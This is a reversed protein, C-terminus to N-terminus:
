KEGRAEKIAADLDENTEVYGTTAYTSAAPAPVVVPPTVPPEEEEGKEANDRATIADYVTVAGELAAIEAQGDLVKHGLAAIEKPYGAKLFVAVKKAQAKEQSIGEMKGADKGADVLVQVEAKLEPYKAYLEALTMADEQQQGEGKKPEAALTKDEEAQATLTASTGQVSMGIMGDIMGSSIADANKSDPDQAIMVDGRGFKKAVTEESVGRGEAVRKIFIREIANVRGELVKRGAKTTPDTVKNPANRSVVTYRSGSYDTILVGISGTLATPALAVIENAASALWYASSAIMGHNEAVVKKKASLQRLAAWAEDVGSITGGPSNIKLTVTEIEDDALAENAAKIVSNYSTGQIGLFSMFRSPGAMSLPGIIDITAQGSSNVRLIDAPKDNIRADMAAIMDETKEASIQDLFNQLFQEEMAWITEM